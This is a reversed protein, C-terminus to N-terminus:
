VELIQAGHASAIQKAQRYQKFLKASGINSEWEKKDAQQNYGTFYFYSMKDRDRGLGAQQKYLVYGRKM